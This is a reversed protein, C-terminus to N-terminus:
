YILLIFLVRSLFCVKNIVRAYQILNVTSIMAPASLFGVSNSLVRGLTYVGIEGQAGYFNTKNRLELPFTRSFWVDGEM